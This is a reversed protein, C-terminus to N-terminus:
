CRGESALKSDVGSAKARKLLSEPPEHPDAIVLRKIIL